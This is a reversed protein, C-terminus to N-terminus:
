RQVEGQLSINTSEPLFTTMRAPRLGNEIAPLWISPALGMVLMLVVLPYLIALEGFHLDDAEIAWADGDWGGARWAALHQDCLCYANETLMTAATM